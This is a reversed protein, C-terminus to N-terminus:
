VAAWRSKKEVMVAPAPVMALTRLRAPGAARSRDGHLGLAVSRLIQWRQTHGALPSRASHRGLSGSRQAHYLKKKFQLAVCEVSRTYNGGYCEVDISRSDKTPGAMPRAVRRRFPRSAPVRRVRRTGHQAVAVLVAVAPVVAVPVPLPTSGRVRRNGIDCSLMIDECPEVKSVISCPSSSCSGPSRRECSTLRSIGCCTM